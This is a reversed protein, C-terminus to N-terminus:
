DNHAYVPEVVDEDPWNPLFLLPHPNGGVGSWDIRKVYDFDPVGFDFSRGYLM